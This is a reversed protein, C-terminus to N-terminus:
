DRATWRWRARAALAFLLSWAVLLALDVGVAPLGGPLTVLDPSPGAWARAVLDSAATGPILLLGARVSDSLSPVALLNAGIAATLLLPMSTYQVGEATGSFTCTLAGAAACLLGCGVVALVVMGPEAPVPAGLLLYVAFVVLAQVVGVAALPAAAASVIQAGTLETTRLRNLVGSERRVTLVSTTTVYTSILMGILGAVGALAAWAVPTPPDQLLGFLVMMAPGSLVSLLTTRRRLLLRSEVLSMRWWNRMGGGRAASLVSVSWRTAATSM